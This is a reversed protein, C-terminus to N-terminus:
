PRLARRVPAACAEERSRGHRERREPAQAHSLVEDGVAEQRRPPAEVRLAVQPVRVRRDGGRDSRHHRQRPQGRVERPVRDRGDLERDAAGFRVLLPPAGGQGDPRCRPVLCAGPCSAHAHASSRRRSSCSARRPRSGRAPASKVSEAPRGAPAQTNRCPSRAAKAPMRLSCPRCRSGTITTGCASDYYDHGNGTATFLTRTYTKLAEFHM